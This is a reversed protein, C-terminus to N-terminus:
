FFSTLVNNVEGVLVYNLFIPLRFVVPFGILVAVLDEVKLNRVRRRHNANILLRSAIGRSNHIRSSARYSRVGILEHISRPLCLPWKIGFNITFVKDVVPVARQNPTSFKVAEHVLMTSTPVIIHTFVRCRHQITAINGVLVPVALIAKIQKLKPTGVRRIHYYIM